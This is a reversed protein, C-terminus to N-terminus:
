RRLLRSLLGLTVAGVAFSIEPNRRAREGLPSHSLDVLMKGVDAALAAANPLIVAMHESWVARTAALDDVLAAGDDTSTRRKRKANAM